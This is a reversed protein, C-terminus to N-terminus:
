FTFVTVTVTVKIKIDPQEGPTWTGGGKIDTKVGRKSAMPNQYVEPTELIIEQGTAIGQAVEWGVQEMMERPIQRTYTEQDENLEFNNIVWDTTEYQLLSLEARFEEQNLSNLMDIKSNLGEQNFPVKEM